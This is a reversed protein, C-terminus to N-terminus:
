SSGDGGTASAGPRLVNRDLIDAFSRPSALRRVLSTRRSPVRCLAGAAGLRGSLPRRLRRTKGRSSEQKGAPECLGTQRDSFTATRRRAGGSIIVFGDSESAPQRLGDGSSGRFSRANQNDALVGRGSFEGAKGLSAGTGSGAVHDLQSEVTRAFLPRHFDRIQLDGDPRAFSILRNEDEMGGLDVRQLIRAAHEREAGAPQRHDRQPRIPRAALPERGVVPRQDLGAAALGDPQFAAPQGHM